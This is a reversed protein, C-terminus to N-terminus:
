HGGGHGGCDGSWGGGHDGHSTCSADHNTGADSSMAVWSEDMWIGDQDQVTAAPTRKRRKRPLLSIFLVSAFIMVVFCIFIIAPTDESM